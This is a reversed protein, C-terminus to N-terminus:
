NSHWAHSDAAPVPIDNVAGDAYDDIACGTFMEIKYDMRVGSLRDAGVITVPAIVVDDNTFRFLSSQLMNKAVFQKGTRIFDIACRRMDHWTQEVTHTSTQTNRNVSQPQNNSSYNTTTLFFQTMFYKEWEDQVANYKGVSRPAMLFSGPYKKGDKPVVLDKLLENFNDQNIESGSLSSFIHFRGEINRSQMLINTYLDKIFPYSTM